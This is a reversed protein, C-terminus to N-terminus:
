LNGLAEAGIGYRGRAGGDGILVMLEGKEKFATIGQLFMWIAGLGWLVCSVISGWFLFQKDHSGHDGIEGIYGCAVAYSTAIGAALFTAGAYFRIGYLARVYLWNGALAAMVCIMPWLYLHHVRNTWTQGDFHAIKESRGFYWIAVVMYGQFLFWLGTGFVVLAPGWRSEGGGMTDESVLKIRERLSTGSFAAYMVIVAVTMLNFTDQPGTPSRTELVVTSNSM